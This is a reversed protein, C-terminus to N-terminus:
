YEPPAWVRRRSETAGRVRWRFVPRHRVAENRVCCILRCRSRSAGSSPLAPTPHLHAAPNRRSHCDQHRRRPSRNPAQLKGVNLQRRLWSRVPGDAVRFTASTAVLPCRPGRPALNRTQRTRPVACPLVGISNRRGSRFRGGSQRGRRMRSPLPTQAGRDRRHQPTQPRNRIPCAPPARGPSQRRLM